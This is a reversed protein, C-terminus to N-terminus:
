FYKYWSIRGIEIPKLNQQYTPLYSKEYQFALGGFKLIEIGMRINGGLYGFGGSIKSFKPGASFHFWKKLSYDVTADLTYYSMEELKSISIGGQLQFKGLLLYQMAYINVGNYRQFGSDTAKNFYHNYILSSNMSIGKFRYNYIMSGNLIYYANERITQKDVFYYQTGPYYGLTISPYKPKRVNVIFSKFITSTKFTKQTFPNTFDNRRLTASFTIQDSFISQDGRLMWSTQDTNYSFLSFSQFNAGTKRYFGSLKTHTISFETEGKFNIGMNSEDSFQLLSSMGKDRLAQGIYPKTSKAFEASIKSKSNLSYLAEVSYGIINIDTRSSDNLAFSSQNKRGKFGTLIISRKSPDGWGIRALAIYQGGGNYSKNLFDRFRYDIKGVAFALYYSPNYELNLGTITIHQATLETYNLTSRGIDFSKVNGLLRDFRNRKVSDIGENDSLKSLAKLDTAKNIKGRLDTIKSDLTHRLSDYVEKKNKIVSFLSDIEEKRKKVDNSVSDINQLKKNPKRELEDVDFKRKSYFRSFGSYDEDNIKPISKQKNALYKREKEEVLRQLTAPNKQLNIKSQLISDTRRIDFMMSKLLANGFEIDKVRNVKEILELKKYKLFSTKDFQIGIDNFNTLYPSNSQRATFSINFPYKEKFTAQAWIRETHQSLNKQLYPTDNLSRYFYEYSVNGHLTLFKTKSNKYKDNIVITQKHDQYQNEFKELYMRWFRNKCGGNYAIFNYKNENNKISFTDLGSYITQSM